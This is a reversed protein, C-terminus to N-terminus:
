RVEELEIPTFQPHQTTMHRRLNEFSRNCCPCLGAKARKTIRTAHGKYGNARHREHEARQQAERRWRAEREIAVELQKKERKLRQEETEGLYFQVHGNPCYFGRRNHDNRYKLKENKFDKTMAFMVGCNCCEEIVMEVAVKITTGRVAVAM